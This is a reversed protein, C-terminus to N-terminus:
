GSRRATFVYTAGVRAVGDADWPREAPSQNQFTRDLRMETTRHSRRLLVPELALAHTMAEGYSPAFVDIDVVWDGEVEDNTGGPVLSIWVYIDQGAVYSPDGGVKGNAVAYGSEVVEKVAKEVMGFPNM